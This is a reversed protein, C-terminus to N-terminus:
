VRIVIGANKKGKGQRSLVRGGIELGWITSGGKKRSSLSTRRKLSCFRKEGGDEKLGVRKLIRL